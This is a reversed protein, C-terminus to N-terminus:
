DEMLCAAYMRPAIRGYWIRRLDMYFDCSLISGDTIFGGQTATLWRLLTSTMTIGGCPRSGNTICTGQAAILRRLLSIRVLVCGESTRALGLSRTAPYRRSLCVVQTTPLWCVAPIAIDLCVASISNVCGDPGIRECRNEAIKGCPRELQSRQHRRNRARDKRM